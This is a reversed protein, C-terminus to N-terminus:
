KVMIKRGKWIYLGAPLTSLEHEASVEAVRIGTATFVPAPGAETVDGIAAVGSPDKTVKVRCTATLESGDTTTATVETEGEQLGTVKGLPTVTAIEPNEVTFVLNSNSVEAPQTVVRLEEEGDPLVDVVERTFEIGSIMVPESVEVPITVSLDTRGKVAATIVTNGVKRGILMGDAVVAVSNDSSTWELDADANLPNLWVNLHTYLGPEVVVKEDSTVVGRAEGGDRAPASSTFSGGAMSVKLRCDSVSPSDMPTVNGYQDCAVPYLYWDGDTLTSIDAKVFPSRTSWRVWERESDIFLVREAPNDVRVACLGAAACFDRGTLNFIGEGIEWGPFNYDGVRFTGPIEGQQLAGTMTLTVPQTGGQPRRVSVTAGQRNNFASNTSSGGIGQDEPALNTLLFYGDSKGEWGWNIHFYGDKDYGDAVFAHGETTAVGDYPVAMGAAIQAYILEEWQLDTFFNRDLHQVAPDYSFNTVLADPMYYCFTGSSYGTYEMYLARGVEYLMKAVGSSVEEDVGVCSNPMSAWDYETNLRFRGAGYVVTGRSKPPWAHTRMVQGMSIAACGVPARDYGTRPCFANYPDGQNWTSACLPDQATRGAIEQREVPAEGAKALARVSEAYGKLMWELAPPLNDRDFSGEFSYGLLAPANTDGAVIAFGAGRGYDVAYLLADSGGLTETYVISPAVSAPLRRAEASKNRVELAKALAQDPTVPAAGAQPAALAALMLTTVPVLKKITPKM